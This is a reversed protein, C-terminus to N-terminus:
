IITINDTITSLDTVGSLIIRTGDDFQLIGGNAADQGFFEVIEAGSQAAGVLGASLVLLDGEAVSFDTILNRGNNNFFAFHDAGNGGTLTDNGRGGELTDNGNGGDLVDRGREGLLRDNGNGGFLTDNGDGGILIDRGSGGYLIDNGAEGLLTDRGQGGYLTDDGFWGYLLDNGNGGRVLDDGNWGDLTDAGDGGRLVDNGSAGRINDGLNSATWTLSSTVPEPLFATVSQVSDTAIGRIPQLSLLADLLDNNDDEYVAENALLFDLLPWEIRDVRGVTVREANQVTWGTLTGSAIEADPDLVMDEGQLTIRAGTTRNVIQISTDTVSRLRLDGFFAFDYFPVNSLVDPPTFAGTLRLRM